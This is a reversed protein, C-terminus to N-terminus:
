CCRWERIARPWQASTPPGPAMRQLYALLNPYGSFDRPTFYRGTTLHFVMMIDAVTLEAGGFYPAEGLRAEIMDYARVARAEVFAGIPHDAGLGAAAALIRMMDGAGLTAGAFHRWFLFNPFEPDPPAVTLRGEGHRSLIYDIIAGSEALMVGDWDVVPALGSPHLAKYAPPGLRTVPDREYLKLDYHIGLEECLWVIRESQSVGLHHVTLM